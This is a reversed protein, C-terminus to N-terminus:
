QDIPRYHLPLEFMQSPLQRLKLNKYYVIWAGDKRALRLPLKVDDAWWEYYVIDQEGERMTVQSVTTTHGDLVETGIRDRAIEHGLAQQCTSESRPDLPITKFQKVRALLFWMLRKDKRVITVEVSGPNNHEIRWMDDRCYLSARYVRGDMQIYRDAVFEISDAPTAQLLLGCSLLLLVYRMM